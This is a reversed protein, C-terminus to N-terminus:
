IVLMKNPNQEINSENNNDQYEEALKKLDYFDRLFTSKEDVIVDQNQGFLLVQSMRKVMSLM